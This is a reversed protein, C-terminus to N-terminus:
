MLNRLQIHPLKRSHRSPIFSYKKGCTKRPPRMELPFLQINEDERFINMDVSLPVHHAFLYHDCFSVPSSKYVHIFSTMYGQQADIHERDDIISINLFWSLFGFNWAFSAEEDYFLIDRNHVLFLVVDSTFLMFNEDAYSRDEKCWYKGWFLKAKPIRNLLRELQRVCLFVDDDVRLFFNFDYHKMAWDVQFLFKAAQMVQRGRPFPQIEIDGFLDTEYKLYSLKSSDPEIEETFFRYTFDSQRWSLWNELMEEIDTKLHAESPYSCFSKPVIM